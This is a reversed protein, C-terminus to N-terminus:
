LVNDSGLQDAPLRCTAHLMPAVKPLPPQAVNSFLALPGSFILPCGGTGGGSMGCSRNFRGGIGSPGVGPPPAEDVPELPEDLADLEPGDLEDPDELEDLPDLLERCPL